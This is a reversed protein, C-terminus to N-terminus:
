ELAIPSASQENLYKIVAARDEEKKLGGYAMKTGKVVGRPNELYADLRDLTWDGGYGIMADSYKYGDVSGVARGVVGYLHPGVRNKGEEVVHCARCQRFVKQGDEVTVSAYIGSASAAAAAPEAEAAPEAAAVETSEETAAEETSAEETAVEETAAEETAAEETAAEETPAEETSAEEAVTEEAPATETAAEETAAEEAGAEEVAAEENEVVETAEEAAAAEGASAEEDTAAEEAPAEELAPAMAGLDLNTGGEENLYAIVDVRDQADSLGGYGMKTGPAWESPKKLFGSLAVLDWEGGKNALADSYSYGDVAALARGVVGHLHPGVGNAGDEIKHCASCQRWIASGNGTDASAVLAAYDVAEEVPAAGSAEEIELAYALVDDHHDGEFVKESFFSLLLFLLFAGLFAGAIKNLEGMSM